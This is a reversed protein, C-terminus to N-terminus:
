NDENMKLKFIHLRRIVENLLDDAAVEAETKRDMNEPKLAVVIDLVADLTTNATRNLTEKILTDLSSM